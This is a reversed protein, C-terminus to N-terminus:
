EIFLMDDDPTHIEVEHNEGIECIIKVHNDIDCLNDDWECVIMKIAQYSGIFNSLKGVSRFYISTNKPDQSIKVDSSGVMETIIEGKVILKIIQCKFPLIIRQGIYFGKYENTLSQKITKSM